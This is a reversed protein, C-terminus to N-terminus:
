SRSAADPEVLNFIRRVNSIRAAQGERGMGETKLYMLPDHNLRRVIGRAMAELAARTDASVPGLRKLTRNLEIAAAAEGRHVLDLIAPKVELNELWRMFRETEEEIIARAKGAEQQRAAKNEEVVEKLDDIDYLYINDLANVAPDIDRPVAIDIFFMPSNRRARLIPPMDEALIIPDPSGTSAIVIDAELMCDRMRGFDEARGHIRQALAQGHELTRNIVIIEDVGAQLLHLAALEAMEGAGLLMAKRGAMNGFIRRALEVAAFSISVASSAVATEHRVRKAVSFAKHFLRNLIPGTAHFNVASRYAAKLQGLIQPEGLVMSDLSAAVEFLHSIAESGHYTYVYPKIDERNAGCAAAWLDLLTDAPKRPGIGLTEVRNCTSLLFSEALEGSKTLPWAASESVNALSFKERVSVPATRHNLGVLSIQFDM